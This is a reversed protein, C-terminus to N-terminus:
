PASMSSLDIWDKDNKIAFAIASMALVCQDKDGMVLDVSGTACSEETIDTTAYVVYCDQADYLTIGYKVFNGFIIKNRLFFWM